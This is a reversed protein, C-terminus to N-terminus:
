RAQDSDVSQRNQRELRKELNGVRQSLKQLLQLIQGVAQETTITGMQWRKMIEDMSYSGM